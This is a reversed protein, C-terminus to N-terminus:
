LQAPLFSPAFLLKFWCFPTLQACRILEMWDFPNGTNYVKAVGLAHLLRDAVFEIYEAMLRSNMGILEVPLASTVFEKEGEVATTIVAVVRLRAFVHVRASGM